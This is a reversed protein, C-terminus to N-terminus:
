NGCLFEVIVDGHCPLPKCFCGLVRGRLALVQSRFDPDNALRGYFYDRYKLIVEARDGDRGLVYPNGFLSGRGIYVDYRGDRRNVVETMM